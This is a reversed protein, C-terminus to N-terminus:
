VSQPRKRLNTSKLISFWLMYLLSRTCSSLPTNSVYKQTERATISFFYKRWIKSFSSKCVCYKTTFHPIDAPPPCEKKLQLLISSVKCGPKKELSTGYPTLEDAKRKEPYPLIIIANAIYYGTLLISAFVPDPIVCGRGPLFYPLFLFLLSVLAPVFGWPLSSEWSAAIDPFWFATHPSCKIRDAPLNRHSTRQPRWSLTM